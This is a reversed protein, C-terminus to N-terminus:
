NNQTSRPPAVVDSAVMRGVGKMVLPLDSIVHRIQARELRLIFVCVEARVALTSGLHPRLNYMAFPQTLQANSPYANYQRFQCCLRGICRRICVINFVNGSPKRSQLCFRFIEDIVFPHDCVSFSHRLCSLISRGLTAFYILVNVESRSTDICKRRDRLM